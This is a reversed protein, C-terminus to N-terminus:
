QIKEREITYGMISAVPDGGAQPTLDMEIDTKSKFRLVKGSLADFLFEYKGRGKGDVAFAGMPTTSTGGMTSSIDATVFACDVGKEKKMEKFKFVTKSSLEVGTEETDKRDQTWEGGVAVEGGPMYVYFTKLLPEYLRRVEEWAEFYGVPSIESVEGKANVVFGVAKGVIQAATPDAEMNGMMARSMEAKDVTVEMVVRDPAVSVCKATVEMDALQTMTMGRFDADTNMKVRYRDSKGAEFRHSFNVGAAQATSLAFLAPVLFLVFSRMMAKM